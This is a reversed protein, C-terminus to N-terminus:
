HKVHLFTELIEELEELEQRVNEENKIKEMQNLELKEGAQQKVKLSEIQELKKRLAKLKKDDSLSQTVTVTTKDGSVAQSPSAKTSAEHPPADDGSPPHFKAHISAIIRNLDSEPIATKVGNALDSLVWVQERLVSAAKHDKSAKVEELETKLQALMEQHTLAKPGKGDTLSVAPTKKSKRKKNKKMAKNEAVDSDKSDSMSATNRKCDKLVVCTVFAGRM